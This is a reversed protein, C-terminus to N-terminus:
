ILDLNDAIRYVISKTVSGNSTKASFTSIASTAGSFTMEVRVAIHNWIETTLLNTGVAGDLAVEVNM